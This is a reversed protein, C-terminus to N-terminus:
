HEYMVSMSYLAFEQMKYGSYYKKLLIFYSAVGYATKNGDDDDDYM